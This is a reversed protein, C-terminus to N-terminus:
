RPSPSNAGSVAPCRKAPPPDIIEPLFHDENVHLGCQHLCEASVGPGIIESLGYIDLAKIGLRTEIEARMEATWPEAGFFGVRLKGERLDVGIEAAAEALFIAYSPTCCLATAGFDQLLMIQRHTNGSSM